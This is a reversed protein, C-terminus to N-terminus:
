SMMTTSREMVAVQKACLGGSSQGKKHLPGSQVFTPELLLMDLISGPASRIAIEVEIKPM